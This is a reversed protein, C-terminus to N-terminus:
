EQKAEKSLELKLRERIKLLSETNLTPQPEPKNQMENKLEKFSAKIELNEIKEEKVGEKKLSIEELVSPEAITVKASTPEVKKKEISTEVTKSLEAFFSEVDDDKASNDKKISDKVEISNEKQEQQIKKVALEENYKNKEDESMLDTPDSLPIGFYLDKFNGEKELNEKNDLINGIQTLDETELIIWKFEKDTSGVQTANPPLPNEIGMVIVGNCNLKKAGIKLSEMEKKNGQGRQNILRVAYRMNGKEAILDAIFAPEDQHFTKMKFEGLIREAIDRFQYQSSFKVLDSIPKVKVMGSNGEGSV